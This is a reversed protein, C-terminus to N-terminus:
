RSVGAGFAGLSYHRSGQARGYASALAFFKRDGLLKVLYPHDEYLADHLRLPYQDSYIRLRASPGLPRAGRVHRSALPDGPRGQELARFVDRQIAQLGTTSAPSVFRAELAPPAAGEGRAGGGEPEGPPARGAGSRGRGVRDAHLGPRLAAGGG